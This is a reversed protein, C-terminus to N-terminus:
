KYKIVKQGTEWGGKRNMWDPEYWKNFIVYDSGKQRIITANFQVNAHTKRGRFPIYQGQYSHIGTVHTGGTRQDLGVSQIMLTGQIYSKGEFCSGYFSTCFLELVYQCEAASLNKQAKCSICIVMALLLTFIKKM